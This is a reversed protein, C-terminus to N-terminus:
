SQWVEALRGKPSRKSPEEKPLNMVGSQDAVTM